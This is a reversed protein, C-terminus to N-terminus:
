PRAPPEGGLLELVIAVLKPQRALRHHGEGDGLLKRPCVADGEKGRQLGQEVAAVQCPQLTAHGVQSLREARADARSEFGESATGNRLTRSPLAITPGVMM